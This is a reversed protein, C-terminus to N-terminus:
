VYLFYYRNNTLWYDVTVQACTFNLLVDWKAHLKVDAVVDYGTIQWMMRGIMM